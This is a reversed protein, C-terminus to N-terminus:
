KQEERKRCLYYDLKEKMNDPMKRAVPCFAANAMRDTFKTIFSCDEAMRSGLMVAITDYRNHITATNDPACRAFSVAPIGRDAFPTSDSSYVGQYAKMGFGEELALYSLYHVLKEESTCCGIFGGMICGIMDLNINLVIRDLLDEHAACYAKSGLLGREESGCWIFRLSYRHPHRSFYEALWILGISGSMNDYAGASLPTSDYHATCVITEPIEGPLDLVLNQSQGAYEEQSLSLKVTQVKNKVMAVASKANINVGPLKVGNAGDVTFQRLERKDMDFDRYLVNGDFTIFGLAGNEVLDHYKWYGLYGELLVIKGRCLSLSYADTGTLYFLPAEATGCGACRYGECPIGNGDAYLSAAINKSMAVTFPETHASLGIKALVDTLYAACQKEEASGGTRIYATDRFIQMIQKTQM